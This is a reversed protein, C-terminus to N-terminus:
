LPWLRNGTNRYCAVSATHFETLPMWASPGTAFIYGKFGEYRDNEKAKLLSSSRTLRILATSSFSCLFPEREVVSRGCIAGPLEDSPEPVEM